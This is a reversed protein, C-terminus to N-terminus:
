KKSIIRKTGVEKDTIVKIIYMQGDGQNFKIDLRVEKNFYADADDYAMVFIGKADYVEIRAKSQYDFEYRINIYEKFPVPYASFMAEVTQGSPANDAVQVGDTCAPPLPTNDSGGLVADITGASGAVPNGGITTVFDYTCTQGTTPSGILSKVDYKVGLVYEVGATAGTVRMQAQGNGTGTLDVTNLRTCNPGFLKVDKNGQVQFLNFGTCTSNTQVVNITFDASPATLKTYYFFVGPIANSVIGRRATYHVNELETANGLVINCCATQTPFIHGGCPLSEITTPLEDTCGAQPSQAYNADYVRVTHPGAAVGTFTYTIPATVDTVDVRDDPDTSDIAIKYPPTGGSITAIITGDSAGCSANTPVLSVLDLAAAPEAIVIPTKDVLVGDVIVDENVCRSVGSVDTVLYNYSGAPLNDFLVNIVATNGGGTRYPSVPDGVKYLEVTYPPTGGQATVTISGTSAGKCLVPTETSNCGIACNYTVRFIASCENECLTTRNRLRWTVTVQTTEATPVGLRPNLPANSINALDNPNQDAASPSYVYTVSIVDTNSPPAFSNFWATFKPNTGEIFNLTNPDDPGNQAVSASVGCDVENFLSNNFLPCVPLPNVTLTGNGSGTCSNGDTITVSYTGAVSASFSAVNGPNSAGAPVTWAYTYSGAPVPVATITASGASACIVPSNVTVTPNATITTLLSCTNSLNQRTVTLVIDFSGALFDAGQPVVTVTSNTNVGSIMAGATNNQLSWSYTVPENNSNTISSTYNLSAVSACATTPGSVLCRPPIVVAAAALSRDQNGGTGNLGLIRSHYPSGSIATAGEGAGWDYEAAIHGGWAIVVTASTANFTIRMSTKASAGTLVDEDLYDVDTIAGNWITLLRLSAALNDFYDATQANAPEPIPFTSPAGLGSIGITPDIVEATHGFGLHSGNPNDINNYSTIFDIAHKSNDRTDWEIDIYNSGLVLDTLIVRYPISWGESYHAQTANANGNVWAAPSTPSAASGNRIQDLNYAPNQGYFSINSFLM